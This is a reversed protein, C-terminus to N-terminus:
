SFYMNEGEIPIDKWQFKKISSADDKFLRGGIWVGATGGEENWDNKIWCDPYKTVFSELWEYNPKWASWLMLKIGHKGQQQIEIKKDKFETNILEQLQNPNYHSAITINNWCDNPM